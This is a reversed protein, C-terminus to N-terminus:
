SDMNPFMGLNISGYESVNRFQNTTQFMLKIKGYLFPIDDDWNVKMNKLSTAWGGVNRFNNNKELKPIVFFHGVTDRLPTILLHQSRQSGFNISSRFM